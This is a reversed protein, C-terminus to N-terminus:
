LLGYDDAYWERVRREVEADLALDGESKNYMTPTTGLLKNIRSYHLTESSHGGELETLSAWHPDKIDTTEIFTILEKPTMGAIPSEEDGVTLMVGDRCKQKWLSVFRDVPDRVIMIWRGPDRSPPRYALIGEDALYNLITSSGCRPPTCLTYRWEPVTWWCEFERM